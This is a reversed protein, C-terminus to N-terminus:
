FRVERKTNYKDSEKEMFVGIHLHHQIKYFKTRLWNNLKEKEKRLMKEYNLKRREGLSKIKTISKQKLVLLIIFGMWNVTVECTM